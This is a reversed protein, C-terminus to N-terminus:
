GSDRPGTPAATTRATPAGSLTPAGSAREFVQGGALTHRALGTPPVSAPPTWTVVSAGGLATAPPDIDAAIGLFARLPNTLGVPITALPPAALRAVPTAPDALLRLAAPVDRTGRLVVRDALDWWRLYRDLVANPVSQREAVVLWRADAPLTAVSAAVMAVLARTDRLTKTRAFDDDPARLFRVVAPTQTAIVLLLAIPAGWREGLVARCAGVVGLAALLVVAPLLFIVHRPHVYYAKWDALITVVPIAVFGLLLVAVLPRVRRDRWGIVAGLVLSALVLPSDWALFRLVTMATAVLGARAAAPRQYSVGLSPAGLWAVLIALVVACAVLAGRGRRGRGRAVLLVALEAALPLISLMATLLSVVAVGLWLAWRGAAEPADCLRVFAWLHAITVLVLLAYWRVEAAYLVHPISGALLFTAVLAVGPELRRAAFVAFVVLAAVSCAFAPIRAHVELFAAAPSPTVAFWAHVLLYDLPMAGANGSGAPVGQRVVRLVEAVGGAQAMALEVVEDWWLSPTGLHVWRLVAGGAVM